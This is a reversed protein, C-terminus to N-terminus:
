DIAAVYRRQGSYSIYSYWKYGNQVTYSDYSFSQGAYYQAVVTSSTSPATRVNTTYKVTYTGNSSVRQASANIPTTYAMSVWGVGDVEAWTTYGNVSEGNRCIRTANFQYGAPLTRVIRSSTNQAARVNLATDTVQRVNYAEVTYGSTQTPREPLTYAPETPKVPLQGTGSAGVEDIGNALDNALQAKSIGWSALYGYPDTHDGWFTDTVWKHTKIGRGSTDLTLPINYQKASKRALWIYARYDQEFQAKNTTRSLEIQVPSNVNAYQGAGWQVYGTPSVQYIKGGDGVIYATYAYATSWARNFYQANNIAPAYTGTEHLIIYNDNTRTSQRMQNYTTNIEYASVQTPTTHLVFLSAALALWPIIKIKRM